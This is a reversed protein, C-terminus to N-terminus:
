TQCLKAALELLAQDRPAAAVDASKWGSGAAEAAARSIAAIRIEGRGAGALRAFLGAARPSHLLVLADAVRAPLRAVPETAYVPIELAVPPGLAIRDRGCLHVACNIGQSAALRALAAGDSPGTRIDAFGTQSAAEATREGVAYCPLALFSTLGDGGLRPANASTLLVADFLLPDPPTWPIPALTFLPAVLPDLGLARARAATEDAGPRPRLIAVKV